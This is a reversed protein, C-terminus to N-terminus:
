LDMVPFFIVPQNAHNLKNGQCNSIAIRNYTFATEDSVAHM